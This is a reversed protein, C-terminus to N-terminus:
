RGRTGRRGGAPGRVRRRRWPPSSRRLRGVGGAGGTRVPPARTSGTPSCTGGGTHLGAPRVRKVCRTQRAHLSRAGHSVERVASARGHRSGARRPGRRDARDRRVGAPSSGPHRQRAAESWRGREGGGRLVGFQAGGCPVQGATTQQGDGGRGRGEGEGGIQGRAAGEGSGPEVHGPDALVGEREADGGTGRQGARHQDPGPEGRGGEFRVPTQSLLPHLDGPFHGEVLGEDQHHPAAGGEGM